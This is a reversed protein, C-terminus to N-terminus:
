RCLVGVDKGLAKLLGPTLCVEALTMFIGYILVVISHPLWPAEKLCVSLWISVKNTPLKDALGRIITTILPMEDGYRFKFSTDAELNSLLKVIDTLCEQRGNTFASTTLQANQLIGLDAEWNIQDAKERDNQYDNFM